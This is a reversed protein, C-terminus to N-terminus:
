KILDGKNNTVTRGISKIFNEYGKREEKISKEEGINKPYIQYLKRYKHAEVKKMIVNAGCNFIRNRNSEDITELSTTAPLNIDKIMIRALAVAKLTLIGSGHNLDKLPTDGHPIFPGIGAMEVDLKKLLLLDKAITNATQGPLGIMFGSGTQYGIEKLNKLCQIRDKLKSGPHLYEYINEDATEHKLLYRDCGAEKFYKFEEYSREGISLTVGVDGYDKIKRVIYAIKEKTYWPDEGSQLVISGYGADIAQKATDIIEDENMRYRSIKLNKNNLGCYLCNCRCYSSFEIIARLYIEDGTRKKRIEDAKKFLYENIEQNEIIKELEVESPIYDNYVINDILLKIDINRM